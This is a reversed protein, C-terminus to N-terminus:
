FSLNIGATYTAPIPYVGNDIGFSVPSGGVEPSYGTAKMFTFVNQANVYVKANKLKIRELVASPFNYGLSVNRIRLYDGKDLFYTSPLFNNPRANDMIPETNSSGPGVWRKLRNAEYNLPAFTQSSRQRYIENGAVGQLDVSLDFSKYSLGLSLGFTYDPIPSGIFTRDQDNIANDSDNVNRYRIDGPRITGQQNPASNIEEQSQFIGEQVYGFFAGIPHGIATRSQGSPGAIITYGVNDGISLVENHITTVNANITYRWDQSFTDNWGLVLEIGRNLITGANVQSVSAGVAGPVDITVLIDRTKRNYFSAEATFKNNLFIAEFGADFGEVVEWRINPNPIFQPIAAPYVNEGFVGSVGTNLLPYYLYNGIKDNGLRGWSAKLKLFNIIDNNAMFSEETVVWGAGVSGFNGWRNFPNFKSTGDRRYSVNLLYKDKFAYNARLLFSLFAQEDAGGNNTRTPDNDGIGLYWFDPHNPIILPEKGQRSGEIFDSGIYQQTMGGLVTFVHENNIEKSYTLTHDVQWTTNTGNRQRVSSFQNPQVTEGVAGYQYFPTYGRSKSFGLDAYAVSKWTFDKLFNLEVFGSAVVRYGESITTGKMFEMVAVPNSVQARQFAPATNYVGDPGKPAYVPVAWIANNLGATQPERTWRFISIDGGVKIHKNITFEDRLRATYRSYSDYKVVGDQKFYNLSFSTQHRESASTISLSHNTIFANRLILDQWDTNATYNSFDYQAQGRNSLEENYLMKFQEANTVDIFDIVKQFGAYSSVNVNTQGKQARKTTIIIVGNAGQVGYIALSSPDKLIEMSAIDNPNVFDINNAFIGDVVYLPNAGSISGVGRIQITPSAGAVGSNTVMVGAVKGQIANLPNANPKDSVDSGKLSAISGTVDRKRQTGYGIVVVEELAFADSEMVVDITQRGGIQVIQTKYGIFTFVLVNEGESVAISFNGEIDTVGGKQTGQVLVNVGPLPQNDEAAVVRGQVQRSQAWAITGLTTSFMMVLLIRKM